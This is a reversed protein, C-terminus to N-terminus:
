FITESIKQFKNKDGIYFVSLGPMLQAQPFFKPFLPKMRNHFEEPTIKDSIGTAELLIRAADVPKRGKQDPNSNKSM